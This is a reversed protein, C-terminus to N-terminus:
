FNFMGCYIVGLDVLGLGLYNFEILGLFYCDSISYSTKGWSRLSSAKYSELNSGAVKHIM